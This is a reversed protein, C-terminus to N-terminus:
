SSVKSKLVGQIANIYNKEFKFSDIEIHELSFALHWFKPLSVLELLVHTLEQSVSLSLPAKIIKMNECVYPWSGNPVGPLCASRPTVRVRERERPQQWNVAKWNTTGLQSASWKNLKIPDDTPKTGTERGKVHLGANRGEKKNIKQENTLAFTVVFTQPRKMPLKKNCNANCKFHGM